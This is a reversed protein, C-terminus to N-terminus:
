DIKGTMRDAEDQYQNMFDSLLKVEDDATKPTETIEITIM